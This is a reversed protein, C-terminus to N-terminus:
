LGATPFGRPAPDLIEAVGKDVRMIALGRQVTNDATFRFIGNVGAFGSPDTLHARSFPQTDTPPSERLMAGIAAVADYALGSLEHPETEFTEVYREEFRSTLVPDPLAFWGGRLSPQTLIDGSADWRSLGIFQAVDSSLGNSRLGIAAFGLGGTPNDTLFVADAGSGLMQKAIPEMAEGIGKITLPYSATAAIRVGFRSAAGLVADRGAQGEISEPYVIGINRHGQSAAFSVLRNATDSFTQGMLYINGGAVVPNNSLSLVPIGRSATASAAANTAASFLPGVIINAGENVAQEAAVAAQGADGGTAYVRLDLDIGQLDAEAMRAANVLSTALKDQSVQDSGLPVLLAVQM